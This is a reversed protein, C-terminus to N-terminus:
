ASVSVRKPGRGPIKPVTVTLVGKDYRAEVGAPDVYSPLTVTRVFSGTVREHRRNAKDEHAEERSGRITLRNGSVEVDLDKEDLGPVDARLTVARDDENVDVAPWANFTPLDFSNLASWPDRGFDRWVREFAQDVEGRLRSLLDAGDGGRNALAAGGGANGGGNHKRWRKLLNM